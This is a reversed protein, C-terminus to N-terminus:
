DRRRTPGAVVTGSQGMKAIVLAKAEETNLWKETDRLALRTAIALLAASTDEIAAQLLSLMRRRM